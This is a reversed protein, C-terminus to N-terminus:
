IHILSLGVGTRGGLDELPEVVGVKAGEKVGTGFGLSVKEMEDVVDIIGKEAVDEVGFGVVVDGRMSLADESVQDACM